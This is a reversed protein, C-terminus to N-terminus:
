KMTVKYACVPCDVEMFDGGDSSFVTFHFESDKFMYEEPVARLSFCFLAANRYITLDPTIEANYAAAHFFTYYRTFCVILTRSTHLILIDCPLQYDKAVLFVRNGGSYM